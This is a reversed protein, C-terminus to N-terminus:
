ALGRDEDILSDISPADPPLDIPLDDDTITLTESIEPPASLMGAAALRARAVDRTLAIPRVDDNATNAPKLTIELRGSPIENPLDIVLRRDDGVEVTLVIPNM